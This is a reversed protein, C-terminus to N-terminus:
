GTPSFLGMAKKRPTEDQQAKWRFVVADGAPWGEQNGEPLQVLHCDSSATDNEYARSLYEHIEHSELRMRAGERLVEARECAVSVRLARAAWSRASGKTSIRGTTECHDAVFSSRLAWSVPMAVM